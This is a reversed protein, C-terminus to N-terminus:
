CFFIIALMKDLVFQISNYLQCNGIFVVFLKKLNILMQFFYIKLIWVWYFIAFETNIIENPYFFSNSTSCSM